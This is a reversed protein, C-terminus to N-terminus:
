VYNSKIIDCLKMTENNTNIVFNCRFEIFDHLLNTNEFKTNEFKFKNIAILFLEHVYKQVAVSLYNLEAFMQESYLFYMQFLQELQELLGIVYESKRHVDAFGDHLLNMCESIKNLQIHLIEIRPDYRNDWELVAV